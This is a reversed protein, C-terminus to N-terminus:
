IKEKHKIKSEYIQFNKIVEKVVKGALIDLTDLIPISVDKQKIILPLETCGLIIAEIDKM